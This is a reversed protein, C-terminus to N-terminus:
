QKKSEYYEKMIKKAKTLEKTPAKQTKKQFGNFLVVLRGDDFCCFIRYINGEMQVRIEYLGDAGEIHRIFKSSIREEVVLLLFIYDIKERVKESVTELFDDFYPGFTIIERVM